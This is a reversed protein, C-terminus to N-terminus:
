RGGGMRYLRKIESASLARNYIRVDDILGDFIDSTFFTDIGISIRTPSINTQTGAVFVDGTDTVNNSDVYIKFRSAEALSGDYTVLVHAWTGVSLINNTSHTNIVNTTGNSEWFTSVGKTVPGAEPDATSHAFMYFSTNSDQEMSFMESWENFGDPRIWTSWTYADSLSLNFVANDQISVYDNSGDFELAQGIKGMARKPGNTLTGNNGNGSMDRATQNGVMDNGDFTWHGVLGETLSDTNTKNVKYTGGLNYLRKIENASLARNYIRVDDILGNWNWSNGTFQGIRSNENQSAFSCSASLPLSLGNDYLAFNSAITSSAGNYAVVIHHWQDIQSGSFNVYLRSWGSAAGFTVEGCSPNFGRKTWFIRWNQSTDTRLTIPIEYNTIARLKSWYAVTFPATSNVFQTSGLDVNDNSGDFELAQGIKGIARKPGNTLTGNNGQGSIDRATQGGIMDKGDFTWHGVLGDKLTGTSQSKNVAFTGGLNYLRKIEDPTLM